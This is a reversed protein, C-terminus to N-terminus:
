KYYPKPNYPHLEMRVRQFYQVRLGRAPDDFAETLPYGFIGLGGRTEFFELFEDCVYHDTEAFYACNENTPQSRAASLRSTLAIAALITAVLLSRGERM